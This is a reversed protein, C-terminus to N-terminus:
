KEVKLSYVAGEEIETGDVGSMAMEGNIYFAWYTGDEEYVARIGDVEKVYLGYPGEDGSIIGLELLAAGVTDCDTGVLYQKESGDGDTVTLTFSKAGSGVPEAESATIVPELDATKSGCGSTCLAAAAILVVCLLVPLMRHISFKKM